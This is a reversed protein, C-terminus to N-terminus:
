RGSVNDDVYGESEHKGMPFFTGRETQYPHPQRVPRVVDDDLSIMRASGSNDPCRRGKLCYGKGWMVMLDSQRSTPWTTSATTTTTIITTTTPRRTTTALDIFIRSLHENTTQSNIEGWRPGDCASM